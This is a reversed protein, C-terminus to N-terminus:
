ILAMAAVVAVGLGVASAGTFSAGSGVVNAAIPTTTATPSPTATTAAVVVPPTTTTAAATTSSAVPPVSSSAATPVTANGKYVAVNNCKGAPVLEYEKQLIPLIRIAADVTQTYLDHELSIGGVTASKAANAWKTVNGDIWSEKFVKPNSAYAWDNTDHNWIIPAFGLAAAIDRVRDDIDGYPPRFYRPAVGTVEKIVLENWKLEGVIQENTLTTMYNHSWTHMALEHGSKYARLAYDPFQVVQGGVM